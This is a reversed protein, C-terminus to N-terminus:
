DYMEGKAQAVVEDVRAGLEAESPVPVFDYYWGCEVCRITTSAKLRIVSLIEDECHPCKHLRSM